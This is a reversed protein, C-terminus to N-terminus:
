AMATLRHRRAGVARRRNGLFDKELFAPASTSAPFDRAPVVAPMGVRGDRNFQRWAPLIAQSFRQRAGTEPTSVSDNVRPARVDGCGRRDVGERERLGTLCWWGFGDERGPRHFGRRLRRVEARLAAALM